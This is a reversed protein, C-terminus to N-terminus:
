APTDLLTLINELPRGIAARNQHILIPREILKPHAALAAIIANDDLPALSFQAQWLAEKTRVLALPAIGLQALLTRIAAEDLPHALYDIIEPQLGKAMLAALAERSKSCRPNHLLKM